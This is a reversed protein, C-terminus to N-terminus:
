RARGGAWEGVRELGLVEEDVGVSRSHGGGMSARARCFLGPSCRRLGSDPRASFPASGLRRVRAAAYRPFPVPPSSCLLRFARPGIPRCPNRVNIAASAAARAGPPDVSASEPVRDPWPSSSCGAPGPPGHSARGAHDTCGRIRRAGRAPVPGSACSIGVM